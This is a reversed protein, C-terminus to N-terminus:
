DPPKIAGLAHWEGPGQLEEDRTIRTSRPKKAALPVQVTESDLTQSEPPPPVGNAACKRGEMPWVLAFEFPLNTTAKASRASEFIGSAVM